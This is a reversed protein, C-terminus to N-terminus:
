HLNQKILYHIIKYIAQCQVLFMKDSDQLLGVSLTSTGRIMYCSYQSSFTSFTPQVKFFNLNQKFDSSPILMQLNQCCPIKFRMYDFIHKYCTLVHPMMNYSHSVSLTTLSLIMLPFYNDLYCRTNNVVIDPVTLSGYM